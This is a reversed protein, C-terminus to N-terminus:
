RHTSKKGAVIDLSCSDYTGNAQLTSQNTINTQLETSSEKLKHSPIVIGHQRSTPIQGVM